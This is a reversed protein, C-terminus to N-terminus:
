QRWRRMIDAHKAEYRAIEAQIGAQLNAPAGAYDSPDPLGPCELYEIQRQKMACIAYSAGEGAFCDHEISFRRRMEEQMCSTALTGKNEIDKAIAQFEAQEANIAAAKEVEVEAQAAALAGAKRAEPATTTETIINQAEAKGAATGIEVEISKNIFFQTVLHSPAYDRPLGAELPGLVVILALGIGLPIKIFDPIAAVTSRLMSVFKSRKEAQKTAEAQDAFLGRQKEFHDSM